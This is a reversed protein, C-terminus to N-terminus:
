ILPEKGSLSAFASAKLKVLSTEVRGEGGAGKIGEVVVRATV